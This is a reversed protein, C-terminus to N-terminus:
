SHLTQRFAFVFSFSSNQKKQLSSLVLAYLNPFNPETDITINRIIINSDQKFLHGMVAQDFHTVQHVVARMLCCKVGKMGGRLGGM